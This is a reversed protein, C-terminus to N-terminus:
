SQRSKTLKQQRFFKTQFMLRFFCTLWGSFSWTNCKQVWWHSQVDLWKNIWKNQCHKILALPTKKIIYNRMDLISSCNSLSSAFFWIEQCKLTCLATKWVGSSHPHADLYYLSSPSISSTDGSASRHRINQSATHFGPLHQLWLTPQGSTWCSKLLLLGAAISWASPHVVLVYGAVLCLIFYLMSSLKKLSVSLVSVQICCPLWAKQQLNAITFCFYLPLCLIKFLLATGKHIFFHFCM